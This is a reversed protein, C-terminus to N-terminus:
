VGTAARAASAKSTGRSRLRWAVLVVAAALLSAYLQTALSRTFLMAIMAAFIAVIAAISLAPFLWVRITLRQPEEREIQRRLKIQAFCVMAYVMLMIAGSANVLFAFLVEPAIV